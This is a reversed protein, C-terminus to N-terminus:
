DVQAKLFASAKQVISPVIPIQNYMVAMATQSCIRDRPNQFGLTINLTIKLYLFSVLTIAELVRDLARM